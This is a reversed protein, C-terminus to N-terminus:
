LPTVTCVCPLQQLNWMRHLPLNLTPVCWGSGGVLALSTGPEVTFSIGKLVKSDPRSPYAFEVNSFEIRGKTTDADVPSGASAEIDIPPTRDIVEFATFAVAQAEQVASTAPGSNLVCPVFTFFFFRRQTRSLSVFRSARHEGSRVVRLFLRDSCRRRSHRRGWHTFHYWVQLEFPVYM